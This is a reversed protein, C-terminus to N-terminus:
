PCNELYDNVLEEIDIKKILIPTVGIKLIEQRSYERGFELRGVPKLCLAEDYGNCAERSQAPELGLVKVTQHSCYNTPKREKVWRKAEELSLESVSYLDRELVLPSSLIVCKKEM